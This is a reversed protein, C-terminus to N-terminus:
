ESLSRCVESEHGYRGCLESVARRERARDGVRRALRVIERLAPSEPDLRHAEELNALARGWNGAREELRALMLKSEAHVRATQPGILRMEEIAHRMQEIDGSQVSAEAMLAYLSASPEQAIAATLTRLADEPRGARLYVRALTHAASESPETDNLAVLRAIASEHEGRDSEHLARQIIASAVAAEVLVELLARRADEGLGPCAAISELTARDERFVRLAFDASRPMELVSCALPRIPAGRRAVERLELWSQEVAGRQMLWQAAMRHPEWWTPALEMARNLWRIASEDRRTVAAYGRMLPFVPESPHVAVGRESAEILADWQQQAALETVRAQMAARDDAVAAPGITVGALATIAALGFPWTASGSRSPRSRRNALAVGLLLAAIVGIGGMEIAFDFQDHVVLSLIAALAGLHSPSSSRKLARLTYWAFVGLLAVAVPLGLESIWEIELNEPHEARASGGHLAVFAPSFAGRGVGLWPADIILAIARGFLALKPLGERTERVMPEIVMTLAAAAVLAVTGAGAILWPSAIRKKSKLGLLMLLALTGAVLSLVGGRSGALVALVANIAAAIFWPARSSSAQEELGSALLLPVGAGVFGALHNTNLLPGTWPPQWWPAPLVGFPERLDLVAHGLTVLTVAFSSIAAIQVVPRRYGGAAALWGAILACFFSLGELLERRTEAPALSLTASSPSDEGLAASAGDVAELSRPALWGVASRPLPVLQFVVMATVALLAVVLPENLSPARAPFVLQIAVLAVAFMLTIAVVAIASRGAMLEPAVLAAIALVALALWRGLRVSNSRESSM